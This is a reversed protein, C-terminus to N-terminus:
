YGSPLFSFILFFYFFHVTKGYVKKRIDILILIKLYLVNGINVLIM